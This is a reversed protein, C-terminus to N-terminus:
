ALSRDFYETEHHVRKNLASERNARGAVGNFGRKFEPHWYGSSQRSRPCERQGYIAPVDSENYDRIWGKQYSLPADYQHRLHHQLGNRFFGGHYDEKLKLSSEERRCKTIYHRLDETSLTQYNEKELDMEQGDTLPLSGTFTCSTQSGVHDFTSTHDYYPHQVEFEYPSEQVYYHSYDYNVLDQGKLAGRQTSDRM